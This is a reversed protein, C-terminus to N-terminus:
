SISDDLSWVHHSVQLPVHTCRYPITTPSKLKLFAFQLGLPFLLSHASSRWVATGQSSSGGSSRQPSVRSISALSAPDHDPHSAGDRGPEGRGGAQLCAKGSIVGGWGISALHRENALYLHDVDTLMKNKIARLFTFHSLCAHHYM